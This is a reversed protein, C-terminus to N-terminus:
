LFRKGAERVAAFAEPLLDDLTEGGALRARFKEASRKLEEESLAEYEPELKNIRDLLSGPTINTEMGRRDFGLRRTVRENSAGFIRTVIREFWAILANFFDGLKELFEM